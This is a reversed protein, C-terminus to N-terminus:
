ARLAALAEQVGPYRPLLDGLDAQDLGAAVITGAGALVFQGGRDRVGLRAQLLVALATADLFPTATLDVCVDADGAIVADLAERLDPAAFVDVEGVVEVVVIPGDHHHLVTAFGISESSDM